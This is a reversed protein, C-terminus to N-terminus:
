KSKVSKNHHFAITNYSHAAGSVSISGGGNLFRLVFRLGLGASILFLAMVAPTVNTGPINWTTFLRWLTGFLCDLVLIADSTM